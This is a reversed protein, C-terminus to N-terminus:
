PQATEAGTSGKRANRQTWHRYIVNTSDSLWKSDSAKESIDILSFFKRANPVPKALPKLKGNQVLVRIEDENFGLIQGAQMSDLRAPHKEILNLFSTEM